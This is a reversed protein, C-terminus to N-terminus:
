TKTWGRRRDRNDPRSRPAGTVPTSLATSYAQEHRRVMPELGFTAARSEGGAALRRRLGPDLYLRRLAASLANADGPMVLLGSTEDEVIEALGDVRSAVVVAGAAMAEVAVLGFGEHRSPIAVVDAAGMFMAVEDRSMVGLLKVSDGLRRRAVEAVIETRLSGEGALLCLLNIGEGRLRDCAALLTAHGKHPALRRPCLIVLGTDASSLEQLMEDRRATGRAGIARFREVDVANHIVRVDRLRLERRYHRAVAQSVAIRLDMRRRLAVGHALKRARLWPTSAPYGDYDTNHLTVARGFRNPGRPLAAVHMVAFFLHAHVVDPEFDDVVERLRSQGRWGDWRHRLGLRHVPVGGDSLVSELDYPAWLVAVACDHGKAALGLALDAVVGEAGARGLSEIVFLLRLHSPSSEVATTSDSVTTARDSM